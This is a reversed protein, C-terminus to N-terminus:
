TRAGPSLRLFDLLGRALGRLAGWNGRKGERIVVHLAVYPAGVLFFGLKQVVSAHRLMFLMWHRSKHRAYNESYGEGFAHSVEHYAVAQPVYLAIYGAEALRLSFDLDEPGFPDFKTDFGGLQRFVEARVMMAGGCAVCAKPTDHQGHDIEGYGIPITQGLLFNIHCGGGDNLRQRDHMFRLKAQTQGIPGEYVPEGFPKLLASVFNPEVLMDNDLFLLHTPNFTQMALAAAANRGSAVGPNTPHCYVLVDPFAARVDEATGDKSGNDWVIVHLPSAESALLSSLCRLTKERQNMTLIIAAVRPTAQHTTDM